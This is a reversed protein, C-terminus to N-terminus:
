YLSFVKKWEYDESRFTQAFLRAMCYMFYICILIVWITKHVNESYCTEKISENGLM